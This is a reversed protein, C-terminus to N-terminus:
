VIYPFRGLNDFGSIVMDSLGVRFLDFLLTQSATAPSAKSKAAHEPM